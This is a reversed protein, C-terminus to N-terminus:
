GGYRDGSDRKNGDVTQSNPAKSPTGVKGTNRRNKTFPFKFSSGRGKDTQGENGGTVKGASTNGM